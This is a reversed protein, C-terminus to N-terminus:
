CGNTHWIGFFIVDALQDGILLRKCLSRPRTGADSGFFHRGHGGNENAWRIQATRDKGLQAM